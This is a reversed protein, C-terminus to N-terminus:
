VLVFSLLSRSTTISWRFFVPQDRNVFESEGSPFPISSLRNYQYPCTLCNCFVHYYLALSRSPPAFSQFSPPVYVVCHHFWLAVSFCAPLLSLYFIVSEILYLPVILPFSPQTNSSLTRRSYTGFLAGLLVRSLGYSNAFLLRTFTWGLWFYVAPLYMKVM